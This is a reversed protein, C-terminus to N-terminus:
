GTSTFGLRASRRLFRRWIMSDGIDDPLDLRSMARTFAQRTNNGFNGDVDLQEGYINNLVAQVLKVTSSANNFGVGTTNDAHVHDEHPQNFFGHLVFCSNSRCLAAFAWYRRRKAISPSVHERELPSIKTNAFVLRDWDCARGEGHMGPKNVFMGATSIHQLAGFSQPVRERVQKVTAELAPVFSEAVDFSRPAPPQGREYFLPVGLINSIRTIGPARRDDESELLSQDGEDVWTHGAPDLEAEMEPDELSDDVGRRDDDAAEAAELDEEATLVEDLHTEIGTM